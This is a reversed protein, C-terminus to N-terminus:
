EGLDTWDLHQGIKLDQQAAKGVVSPLFKPEIGVRPRRLGLMAESIVTGRPIDVVAIIGRRMKLRNSQERASPQKKSSGLLTEVRRIDEVLARFDDPDASTKHDPGIMNKDLTFHKEIVVAGLAVATLCSLNGITHDSYGVFVSYRDALMKLVRLNASNPSAPYDSTCQMLVLHDGGSRKVVEVAEDIEEITSMGTSLILPKGTESVMRLMTPEVIHMSALKYAQVELSELFIVDSPNYPTSLFVIGISECYRSLEAEDEHSLELSKLMQLQTESPDTTELQYEAKPSAATVIENASFTQYKVCDAGCEKAKKALEKACDLNGNHNVGAEAIIFAPGDKCISVGTSGTSHIM